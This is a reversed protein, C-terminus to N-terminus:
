PSRKQFPDLWYDAKIAKAEKVKAFPRFNLFTNEHIADLKLASTALKLWTSASEIEEYSMFLLGSTLAVLAEEFNELQVVSTDDVVPTPYQYYKIETPYDADPVKFVHAVRGFVTYVIPKGTSASQLIPRVATDWKLPTIYTLHRPTSTSLLEWSYIKRPRVLQLGLNPDTLDYSSIDAYLTPTATAELDQWESTKAVIKQAINFFFKIQEEAEASDRAIISKIQTKYEGFTM